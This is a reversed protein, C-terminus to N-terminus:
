RSTQPSVPMPLSIYQELASAVHWYTKFLLLLHFLFSITRLFPICSSRHRRNEEEEEWEKGNRIMSKALSWLQKAIATCYLDILYGNLAPFFITLFHMQIYQSPSFLIIALRRVGLREKERIKLRTISPSPVGSHAAALSGTTRHANEENFISSCYIHERTLAGVIPDAVPRGSEQATAKAFLTSAWFCFLLLSIRVSWTRGLPLSTNAYM